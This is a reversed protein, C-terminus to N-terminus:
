AKKLFLGNQTVQTHLYYGLDDLKAIVEQTPPWGEFNPRDKLECVIAYVNALTKSAGKLIELEVGECDMWLLTMNPHTGLNFGVWEVADDLTMSTAHFKGLHRSEKDLMSTRSRFDNLEFVRGTEHWLVGQIISGRFGARWAEHCYRQVPEVALFKSHQFTDLLVPGEAWDGLGCQILYKIRVGNGLRFPALLERAEDQARKKRWYARQGDSM